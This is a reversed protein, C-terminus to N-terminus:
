TCPGLKYGVGHVTEIVEGAGLAAFKTRVGRVHSDITRQSVAIDGGYAGDMLADRDFVRNPRQMLTRLLAFERATLPAPKGDWTAAHGELDLALRGRELPKAEAAVDGETGPFENDRGTRRLIAGVRAVLERPSFPKTVYDDGGLELGIVRDIEDSKSSLFLIPTAAIKRLRRCVELGDLEPMLIDLIVLDPKDRAAAELAEKGNAAQVARLCAQELAFAIVERIHPDDDVVLITKMPIRQATAANSRELSRCPGPNM